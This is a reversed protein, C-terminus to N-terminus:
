HRFPCNERHHGENHCYSCKKPKDPNSKDMENHIRNTSPRGFAKPRPQTLPVTSHIDSADLLVRMFLSKFNTFENRLDSYKERLDRNEQDCQQLLQTLCEIAEDVTTTSSSPQHKFTGGKSTTYNTALQGAGYVRGKKKGGIVDVCCQTRRIDDDENSTNDPTPASGHESRVQSLRTSFEEHTKRSREDVFENTGKRVHTQAFVEDVHIARGLAQAMRIAHEHVTISGGTHLTGGKESARNRQATACKNCFEPANMFMESLRHSAKM